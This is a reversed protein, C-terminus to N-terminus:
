RVDVGILDDSIVVHFLGLGFHCSHGVCLPGAVSEPFTLRFFHGPRM